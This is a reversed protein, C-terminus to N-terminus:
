EGCTVRVTVCDLRHELVDLCLKLAVYPQLTRLAVDEVLQEEEDLNGPRGSQGSSAKLRRTDMPSDPCSAIQAVLAVPMILDVIQGDFVVRSDFKAVFEYQDTAFRSRAVLNIIM